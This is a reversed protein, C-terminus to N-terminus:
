EDVVERLMKRTQYFYILASFVTSFLTLWILSHLMVAAWSEASTYRLYVLYFLTWIIAICQVFTKQKGWINSGFSVSKSEVITRLSHLLFERFIIVLVMWSSIFPKLSPWSVFFIFSGCILVKDVFPDAIRGFKTVINYRRALYGDLSDTLAAVIFVAMGAYFVAKDFKEPREDLGALHLLFFYVIALFLRSVTVKNPLNM